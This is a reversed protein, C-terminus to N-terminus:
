EHSPSSSRKLLRLMVAFLHVGFGFALGYFFAKLESSAAWAPIVITDFDIM